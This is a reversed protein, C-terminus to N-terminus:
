PESERRKIVPPETPVEKAFDFQLQQRTEDLHTIELRVPGSPAARFLSMFAFWEEHFFALIGCNTMHRSGVEGTWVRTYCFEGNVDYNELRIKIM